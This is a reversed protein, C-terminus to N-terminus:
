QTDESELKNLAPLAAFNWWHLADTIFKTRADQDQTIALGHQAPLPFLEVAQRLTLPEAGRFYATIVEQLTM